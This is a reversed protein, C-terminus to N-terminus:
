QVMFSDTLFCCLLFFYILMSFGRLYNYWANDKKMQIEGCKLSLIFLWLFKVNLHSQLKTAKAFFARVIFRVSFIKLFSVLVSLADFSIFTCFFPGFNSCNWHCNSLIIYNCTVCSFVQFFLFGKHPFTMGNNTIFRKYNRNKSIMKHDYWKKFTAMGFRVCMAAQQIQKDRRAYTHIQLNCYCLRFHGLGQKSIANWRIKFPKSRICAM